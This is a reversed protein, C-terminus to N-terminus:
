KGMPVVVPELAGAANRTLVIKSAFIAEAKGDRRDTWSAFFAGHSVALGNYEAYQNSNAGPGNEDTSAQTVRIAKSWTSGNDSSSQFIVDTKKRDNGIGTEYYMIGLVGSEQDLALRQHFQDNKRSDDNVIRPPEWTKGGDTSRTFWIRSKCNAHVDLGPEDQGHDCGQKRTLDVWSVYIDDRSAKNYAAISVSVLAFRQAIAPLTIRFDAVTKAISQPASYHVGGDKSEVFFLNKSDSDPWVAFVNGSNNSTIDSGIAKGTTEPGSLQHPPEWGTATRFAAFAPGGDRWIAYIRDRFPSTPSCDVWVMEKDASTQQGSITADFTWSKGGDSSRYARLRQFVRRAVRRQGVTLAWATGDSAWDVAPDAHDTDDPLLPLTTNAWTVGADHSFFVALQKGVYNNSAAIIRTPDAISVSIDSESRPRDDAESIRVEGTNTKAKQLQSQRVGRLSRSFSTAATTALIIVAVTLIFRSM